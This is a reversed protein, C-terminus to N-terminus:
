LSSCYKYFIFLCFNLTKEDNSVKFFYWNKKFASPSVPLHSIFKKRLWIYKADTNWKLIKNKLVLLWFYLINERTRSNLIAYYINLYPGFWDQFEVNRFSNLSVNIIMTRPLCIHFNPFPTCYSFYISDCKSQLYKM